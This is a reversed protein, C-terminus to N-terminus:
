HYSDRTNFRGWFQMEVGRLPWIHRSPPFLRGPRESWLGVLGEARSLQVFFRPFLAKSQSTSLWQSRQLNNRSQVEPSGYPLM